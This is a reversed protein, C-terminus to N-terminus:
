KLKDPNHEFWNKDATCPKWEVALGKIPDEYPYCTIMVEGDDTGTYHPTVRFSYASAIDGLFLEEKSKGKDSAAYDALELDAFKAQYIHKGDKKVIKALKKTRTISRGNKMMRLEIVDFTLAGSEVPEGSFSICFGKSSPDGDSAVSFAFVLGDILVKGCSVFRVKVGRKKRQAIAYKLASLSPFPNKM